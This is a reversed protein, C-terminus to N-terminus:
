ETHQWAALQWRRTQPLTHVRLDAYRRAIQEIIEERTSSASFYGYFPPEDPWDQGVHACYEGTAEDKYIATIWWGRRFGAIGKLSRGDRYIAPESPPTDELGDRLIHLYELRYSAYRHVDRHVSSLLRQHEERARRLVKNEIERAAPASVMGKLAGRDYLVGLTKEDLDLMIRDVLETLLRGM